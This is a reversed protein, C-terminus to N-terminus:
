TFYELYQPTALAIISLAEAHRLRDEERDVETIPLPLMDGDEAGAMSAVANNLRLLLFNTLSMDRAPPHWPADPKALRARLIAPAVEPDNLQAETIRNPEPLEDLTDLLARYRGQQWWQGLDM